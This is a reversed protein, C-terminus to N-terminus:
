RLGDEILGVGQCPLRPAILRDRGVYLECAQEANAAIATLRWGGPTPRCDVAFSQNRWYPSRSAAAIAEGCNALRTEDNSPTPEGLPLDSEHRGNAVGAVAVVLALASYILLSRPM